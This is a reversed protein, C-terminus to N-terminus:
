QHLYVISGGGNAMRINLKTKNTIEMTNHDYQTADTDADKGDLYVDAKYVKGEPLFSFDISQDRGIWNTMAGVFWDDGKRKAIIAYESRKAGLVKTDDFTTPIASLFKMIDPYKRYEAPADCLMAFPQDFLVYMSLEHCRTGQSSPLGPDIPKFLEKTKNRMSGPTYDLPGALMRTFLVDLHHDPNATLDWKSCEAGRVAEYNVINPYARELGTPKSCGHFNVMLKRKAAVSAIKEFWAIALQDDRDIFDVKLGAAGWQQFLDMYRDLDAILTTAVCWLFINVNKSKGYQILEKIDVKPNAKSLNYIDSWGADIMLYELKNASAFDIYHKYLATNRNNMGSPIGADEVIADHWWEWTAKGPKVWSADIALPKALKYILDNTLFTKDDDSPMIVRWPFTRTGETKAVFNETEKVVSVFNGWSGLETRKPYNAWTGKISGASKKLYMGPYNLVDSEGVVINIKNNSFLVPTFAKKNEAIGSVSPYKIYPVEWSTFVDTEPFVVSPDGSFNFNAEESIVTVPSDINTKFRYAVGENYARLFISYNGEFDIILENYRDDLTKFNGYPLNIVGKHNQKSTKKVKPSAGLVQDQLVLAIASPTVIEIGKYAVSYFIKESVSVRITLNGDPSIVELKGVKNSAFSYVSCFLLLILASNKMSLLVRNIIKFNM